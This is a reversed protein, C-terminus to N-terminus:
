WPHQLQINYRRGNKPAESFENPGRILTANLKLTRKAKYLSTKSRLMGQRILREKIGSRLKVNM